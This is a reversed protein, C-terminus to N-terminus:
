KKLRLRLELSGDVEEIGSVIRVVRGRVRESWGRPRPGAARPRVGKQDREVRRTRLGAVSVVAEM